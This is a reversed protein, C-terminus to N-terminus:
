ASYVALTAPAGSAALNADGASGDDAFTVTYTYTGAAPFDVIERTVPVALNATSANNIITANGITTGDRKIRISCFGSAGDSFAANCSFVVRVPHNGVVCDDATLVTTETTINSQDTAISDYGLLRGASRAM